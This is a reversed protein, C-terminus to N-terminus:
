TRKKKKKLSSLYITLCRFIFYSMITLGTCKIQFFYIHQLQKCHFIFWFHNFSPLRCKLLLVHLRLKRCFHLNAEPAPQKPTYPLSLCTIVLLTNMCRPFLTSSDVTCYLLSKKRLQKWKSSNIVESQDTSRALNKYEREEHATSLLRLQMM